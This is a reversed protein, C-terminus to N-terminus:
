RKAFGTALVGLYEGRAHYVFPENIDSSVGRRCGARKLDVTSCIASSLDSDIIPM